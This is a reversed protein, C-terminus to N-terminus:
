LNQYARKRRNWAFWATLALLAVAALALGVVIGSFEADSLNTLQLVAQNDSDSSTATEFLESSAALPVAPKVQNTCHVGPACDDATVCPTSTGDCLLEALANHCLLVFLLLLWKM